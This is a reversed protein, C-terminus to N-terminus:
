HLVDYDNKQGCNQRWANYLCWGITFLVIVLIVAVALVMVVLFVIMFVM